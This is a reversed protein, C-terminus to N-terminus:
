SPRSDASNCSICERCLKRNIFHAASIAGAGAAIMIAKGFRSDEFVHDALVLTGIGSIFIAVSRIKRHDRFYSPFLSIAAILISVGIFVYEAIENDLFTLGALPLFAVLMPLAMCHVACVWSFVVGAKDFFDRIDQKQSHM